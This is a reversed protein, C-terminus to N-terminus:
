TLDTQVHFELRRLAEAGRAADPGIKVKHFLPM